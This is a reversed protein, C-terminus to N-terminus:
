FPSGISVTSEARVNPKSRDLYFHIIPTLIL